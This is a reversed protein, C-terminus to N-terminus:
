IHELLQVIESLPSFSYNLLRKRHSGRVRLYHASRLLVCFLLDAPQTAKIDISLVWEAAVNEFRPVWLPMNQPGLEWFSVCLFVWRQKRHMQIRDHIYAHVTHKGTTTQGNICILHRGKGSWWWEGVCAWKSESGYQGQGNKDSNGLLMFWIGHEVEAHTMKTGQPSYGAIRVEVLEHPTEEGIWGGWLLADLYDDTSCMSYARQWRGSKRKKKAKKGGWSTQAPFYLRSSPFSLALYKM